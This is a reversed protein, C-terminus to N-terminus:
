EHMRVNTTENMVDNMQGSMCVYNCVNMSVYM